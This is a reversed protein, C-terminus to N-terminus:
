HTKSLGGIDGHVAEQGSCPSGVHMLYIKRDPVKLVPPLVPELGSSVAWVVHFLLTLLEAAM